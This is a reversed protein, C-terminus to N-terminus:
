LDQRHDSALPVRKVKGGWARVPRSIPDAIPWPQVVEGGHQLLAAALVNAGEGTGALPTYNAQSLGHKAVLADMIDTQFFDPYRNIGYQRPDASRQKEWAALVAASTGFPSENRDLRARVRAPHRGGRQRRAMEELAGRAPYIIADPIVGGGAARGARTVHDSGRSSDSGSM